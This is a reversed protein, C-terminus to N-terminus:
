LKTHIIKTTIERKTSNISLRTSVRTLCLRPAKSYRLMKYYPLNECGRLYLVNILDTRECCGSYRIWLILGVCYSIYFIIIILNCSYLQTPRFSAAKTRPPPPILCTGGDPSRAAPPPERSRWLFM